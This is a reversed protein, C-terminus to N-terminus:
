LASLLVRHSSNFPGPGVCHETPHRLPACHPHHPSGDRATPLKTLAVFHAVKSFRNVITLTVSWRVLALWHRFGPRRPVLAKEEVSFQQSLTGPKVNQSSPRYTLTFDFCSFLLEWRAQRSNLRKATQIYSLNKHDTWVVLPQMSGELWHQWEELALKVALLERNCIDNNAEARLITIAPPFERCTWQSWQLILHYPLEVQPHYHPSVLCLYCSPYSPYGLIRGDVALANRPRELPESPIGAQGTAQEDIFSEEAGSDILAQLSQRQLQFCVTALIQFRPQSGSPNQIQGALVGMSVAQLQRNREELSLHAGGVQMPEKLALDSLHHDWLHNLLGPSFQALIVSASTLLSDETWDVEAALTWFELTYDAVSCRGQTITLLHSSASFPLPQFRLGDSGGGETRRKEEIM